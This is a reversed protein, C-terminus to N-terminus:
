VVLGSLRLEGCVIQSRGAASVIGCVCEVPSSSLSGSEDTGKWTMSWAFQCRQPSAAHDDVMASKRTQCNTASFRRALSTGHWHIQIAKANQWRLVAASERELRSPNFCSWDCHPVSVFCSSDGLLDAGIPLFRTHSFSSCLRPRVPFRVRSM